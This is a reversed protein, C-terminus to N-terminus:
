RCGRREVRRGQGHPSHGSGRPGGERHGRELTGQHAGADVPAQEAGRPASGRGGHPQGAKRKDRLQREEQKLIPNDPGKLLPRPWAGRSSCASRPHRPVGPKSRSRRFIRPGTTTRAWRGASTPSRSGPWCRAMTSTNQRSRSPCRSSSARSGTAGRTSGSRRGAGRRCSRPASRRSSDGSFSRPSRASWTSTPSTRKVDRILFDYINHKGPNVGTAFSAWATPSESPQTSGLTRFTGEEALKKLNPLKGEDMCKRALTPDMGDFGMVFVRQRARRVPKAGENERSCHLATAGLVVAAALPILRWPVSRSM